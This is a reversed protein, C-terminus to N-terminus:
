TVLQKLGPVVGTRHVEEHHRTSAGRAAQRHPLPPPHGEPQAPWRGPQGTPAAAGARRRGSGLCLPWRAKSEAKQNQSKPSPLVESNLARDGENHGSKQPPM